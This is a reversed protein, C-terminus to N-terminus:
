MRPKATERSASLQADRVWFSGATTNSREHVKLHCDMIQEEINTSSEIVGVIMRQARGDRESQLGRLGGDRQDSLM